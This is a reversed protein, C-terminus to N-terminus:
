RPHLAPEVINSLTGETLKVKVEEKEEDLLSFAEEAMKQLDWKEDKGDLIQRLQREYVEKPWIEIRNMVGAVVIEKNIGIIDKLFAPIATRGLRDCSTQHLTSFFTTFFPQHKASHAKEQFKKVIRDIDSRKYIAVCKGLGLCMVFEEQAEEVLGLRFTKPLVFRGKEDLKLTWSGSFFYGM